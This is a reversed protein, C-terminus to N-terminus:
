VSIVIFFSILVEKSLTMSQVIGLLDILDEAEQRRKGKGTKCDIGKLWFNEVIYGM